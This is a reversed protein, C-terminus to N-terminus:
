QHFQPFRKAFNIYGTVHHNVYSYCSELLINRAINEVFCSGITKTGLLVLVYMAEGLLNGKLTVSSYRYTKKNLKKQLNQHLHYICLHPIMMMINKLIALGATLDNQMLDNM